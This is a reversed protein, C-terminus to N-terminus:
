DFIVTLKETESDYEINYIEVPLKITNIINSPRQIIIPMNKQLYIINRFRNLSYNKRSDLQIIFSTGNNFCSSIFFSGEFLCHTFEYSANYSVKKLVEKLENITM